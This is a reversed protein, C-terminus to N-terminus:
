ENKLDELFNQLRNIEEESPEKKKFFSLIVGELKSIRNNSVITQYDKKSLTPIYKVHLGYKVTKSFGKRVINRLLNSKTSRAQPFNEFVAESFIGEPHEWIFEMIEFEKKSLLQIKECM